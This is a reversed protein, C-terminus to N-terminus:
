DDQSAAAGYSSRVVPYSPGCGDFEAPEISSCCGCGTASEEGIRLKPNPQHDVCLEGCIGPLECPLFRVVAARDGGGPSLRGAKRGGGRQKKYNVDLYRHYPRDRRSPSRPPPIIEDLDPFPIPIPLPIEM